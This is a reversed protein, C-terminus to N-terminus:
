WKNGQTKVENARITSDNVFLMGWDKLTRDEAEDINTITINKHHRDGTFEGNYLM